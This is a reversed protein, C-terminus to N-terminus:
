LEEVFRNTFYWAVGRMDAQKPFHGPLLYDARNTFPDLAAAMERLRGFDEQLYLLMTGGIVVDCDFTLRLNAPLGGM